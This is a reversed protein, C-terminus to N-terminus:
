SSRLPLLSPATPSVSHLSLKPLSGACRGLSPRRFTSVSSTSSVASAVSSCHRHSTSPPRSPTLSPLRLPSALPSPSPSTLLEYFLASSSSVDSLSSSSNQGCVVLLQLSTPTATTSRSPSRCEKHETRLPTAFIDLIPIPGCHEATLVKYELDDGGGTVPGARSLRTTQKNQIHFVLLDGQSTGVLLNPCSFHLATIQLMDTALPECDSLTSCPSFCSINYLM